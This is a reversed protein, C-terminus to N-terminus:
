KFECRRGLAIVPIATQWLALLQTHEKAFGGSKRKTPFESGPILTELRRNKLVGRRITLSSMTALGKPGQELAISWDETVMEPKFQEEFLSMFDLCGPVFYTKCVDGADGGRLAM